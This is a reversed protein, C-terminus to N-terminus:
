RSRPERPRGFWRLRWSGREMVMDMATYRLESTLAGTIRVRAIQGGGEARGINEFLAGPTREGLPMANFLEMVDREQRRLMDFADAPELGRARFERKTVESLVQETFLDRENNLLTQAIHTMLHRGSRANLTIDGNEAVVRLQDPPLFTPDIIGPGRQLPQNQGGVVAGPLNALPRSDRVVRTQTECGALAVAAALLALARTMVPAVPMTM